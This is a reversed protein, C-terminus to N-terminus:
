KQSGLAKCDARYIYGVRSTYGIVTEDDKKGNFFQKEVKKKKWWLNGM